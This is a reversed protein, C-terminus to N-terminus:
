TELIQVGNTMTITVVNTSGSLNQTATYIVTVVPNDNNAPIMKPDVDITYNASPGPFVFEGSVGTGPTAVVGIARSADATRDASTAYFRARCAVNATIQTIISMKGLVSVSDNETANNAISSTSYTQTSRTFSAGGGGLVAWTSSNGANVYVMTSTTGDNRWFVAPPGSFFSPVGSGDYQDFEVGKSFLRIPAKPLAYYGDGTLVLSSAELQGAGGVVPISPGVPAGAQQFPSLPKIGSVCARGQRLPDADASPHSPAM